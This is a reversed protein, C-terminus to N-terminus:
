IPARTECHSPFYVRCTKMLLPRGESAAQFVALFVPEIAVRPLAALVDAPM